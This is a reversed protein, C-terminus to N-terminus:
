YRIAASQMMRNLRSSTICFFFAFPKKNSKQQPLSFFFRKPELAAMSVSRKKSFCLIIHISHLLDIKGLLHHCKKKKSMQHFFSIFFISKSHEIKQADCQSGSEEQMICHIMRNSWLQHYHRVIAHKRIFLDWCIQSFM